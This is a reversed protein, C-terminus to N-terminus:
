RRGNKLRQEKYTHAIFDSARLTNFHLKKGKRKKYEATLKNQTMRIERILAPSIMLNRKDRSLYVKKILSEIIDFKM